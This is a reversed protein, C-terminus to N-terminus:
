KNRLYLADDFSGVWAPRYVVMLAIVSGTLIAEPFVMLLYVPLYDTSLRQWRYVGAALFALSSFLGTFAMALGANFFGHVFVYVFFHKPLWRRVMSQVAHSLLVPAAVSLLGNLGYAYWGSKGNLTVAALVLSLGLLALRWGFMLVLLTAGLLHFDLGPLIGAHLLWLLMLSVCAGLFVHQQANDMLRRWPARWLAHSLLMAYIALGVGMWLSPFLGDPINM